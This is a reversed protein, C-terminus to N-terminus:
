WIAIARPKAKPTKEAGYEKGNLKTCLYPQLSVFSTM